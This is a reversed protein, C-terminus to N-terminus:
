HSTSYYVFGFSQIMRVVLLLELKGAGSLSNSLGLVSRIMEIRARVSRKIERRPGSKIQRVLMM